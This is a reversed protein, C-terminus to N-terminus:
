SDQGQYRGGEQQPAEEYGQQGQREAEDVDFTGVRRDVVDDASLGLVELIAPLRESLRMAYDAFPDDGVIRGITDPTQFESMDLRTMRDPSGFLYGALAKVIETKGTGTPGAFLFVGQPRTPDTLGAKILAIREVLCDVADVPM